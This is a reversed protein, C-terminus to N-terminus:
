KVHSLHSLFHLLFLRTGTKSTHQLLRGSRRSGLSPMCYCDGVEGTAQLLCATAIEWKAQQRSFAHLLLRGSRRNGPSPMCYCDGVEGTAQLLCATAIEWKAQQRSFAHLLLRGSRRNGLSPMCIQEHPFSPPPLPTHKPM